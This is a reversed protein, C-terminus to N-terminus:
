RRGAPLCGRGPGRRAPECTTSGCAGHARRPSSHTVATTADERRHLPAPEGEPGADGDALLSGLFRKRSAGVLVPRHLQELADLRALLAWNHEATKAFGIGPDVVTQEPDVGADALAALRGALEGTVDAVVDGYRARESMDASHGRWHMVVYPVGAAAVV